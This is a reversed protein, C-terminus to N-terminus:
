APIGCIAVKMPIIMRLNRLISCGICNEGLSTADKNRPESGFRARTSTILEAVAPISWPRINLCQTTEPDLFDM